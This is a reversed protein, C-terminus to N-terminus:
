QEYLPLEVAEGESIVRVQTTDCAALKLAALRQEDFWNHFGALQEQTEAILEALAADSARASQESALGPSSTNGACASFLLVGVLALSMVFCLGSKMNEGLYKPARMRGCM